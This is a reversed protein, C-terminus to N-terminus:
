GNSNESDDPHPGLWALARVRSPHWASMDYQLRRCRYFARSTFLRSLTSDPLSTFSPYSILWGPVSRYELDDLECSMNTMGSTAWLAVTM